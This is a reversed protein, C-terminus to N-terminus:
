NYIYMCKIICEKRITNFFYIKIIINISIFYDDRSKNVQVFLLAILM